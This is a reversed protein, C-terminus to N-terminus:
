RHCTRCRWDGAGEIAEEDIEEILPDTMVSSDIVQKAEEKQLTEEITADASDHPMAGIATAGLSDQSQVYQEGNHKELLTAATIMDQGEQRKSPDDSQLLHRRKIERLLEAYKQARLAKIGTGSPIVGEATMRQRYDKLARGLPSSELVSAMYLHGKYRTKFEAALRGIIDETHMRIFAERLLESLTNVDAAHTWFSDHVAAFTLGAENAKLASLLMHTADLSHVFNPPFAQLQKRKNVADAM